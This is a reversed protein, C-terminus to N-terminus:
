NQRGASGTGGGRSEFFDKREQPATFDKGRVGRQCVHQLRGQLLVQHRRAGVAEHLGPRINGPVPLVPPMEQESASSLFLLLLLVSFCTLFRMDDAPSKRM